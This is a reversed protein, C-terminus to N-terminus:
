DAEKKSEKKEAKEAKEGKEAKDAKPPDVGLVKAFAALAEEQTKADLKDVPFTATVKKDDGYVVITFTEKGLHYKKPGTEGDKAVTLPVSKLSEKEAMKELAGSFADKKGLMIVTGCAKKDKNKSVLEDIKRVFSALDDDTKRAFM